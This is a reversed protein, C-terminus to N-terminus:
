KFIEKGIKGDCRYKNRVGASTWKPHAWWDEFAGYGEVIVNSCVLDYGLDLMMERTQTRVSPGVRYADHEITISQCEVKSFPFAKLAGITADDCDVSLYGLVSPLTRYKELLAENPHAADCVVFPSSRGVCIDQIDVLVGVWGIAELGSSNSNFHAVNCGIDVFGGYQIRGSMRWAFEDQGAQSTSVFNPKQM